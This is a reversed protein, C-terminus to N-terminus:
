DKRLAEYLALHQAAIADWAYPGAAVTRAADALRECAAPDALLGTLAAHLAAPDGPPVLEAAGTAAVEPFGGVASLLLPKGFALATFLVGSQDIERYPLVVLDARRFFAPIERDVVFRPVFRVNPPAAARLPAIDMKPLGVVWLEADEIGHWAELLVDIGKYPRMLGFCLVVPKEVAALEPPLPTDALAPETLHTFAGHPIVHVQAPDIGLEDRLRGAGHESHVVVADVREYLRRQADLQGPRPERPLVDHATLVLPPRRSPSLALPPLHVDLPQVTLWQFHVVGARRASRSAAFRLMDPVHQVLKAARRTRSGATGPAWRYFAERVAYGEGRPVDGYAFRSTVLEVAIRDGAVRALAGALAHDYPPTFASPDVLQVDLPSDAMDPMM